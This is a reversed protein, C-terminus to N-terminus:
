SIGGAPAGALGPRRAGRRPGPDGPRRGADLDLHRARVRDVVGHVDRARGPACAPQRASGIAGASLLFAAFVVTYGDAVCQMATVGGGLDRGVAPLAVTVVTVDLIVMFYGICLAALLM